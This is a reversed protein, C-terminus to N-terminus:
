RGRRTWILLVGCGSEPGGYEPPIESARRYVEIAIVDEPRVLSGFSQFDEISVLFGDIFVRLPGCGRASLMGDVVVMSGIMGPKSDLVTVGPMGTLLETVNSVAGIREEIEERGVFTGQNLVKRRAFGVDRLYQQVVAGTVEVPELSRYARRKNIIEKLDM